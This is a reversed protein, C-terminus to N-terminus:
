DKRSKIYSYLITGMFLGGNLALVLILITELM